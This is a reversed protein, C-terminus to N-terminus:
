LIYFLNTTFNVMVKSCGRAKKEHIGFQVTYLYCYLISFKIIELIICWDAEFKSCLKMKCLYLLRFFIPPTAWSTWIGCGGNLYMNTVRYSYYFFYGWQAKTMWHSNGRRVFACSHLSVRSRPRLDMPFYPSTHSKNWGVKSDFHSWNIHLTKKRTFQTRVLPWNIEFAFKRIRLM